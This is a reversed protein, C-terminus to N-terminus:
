SQLAALCHSTKHLCSLYTPSFVHKSIDLYDVFPVGSIWVKPGMEIPMESIISLELTFGIKKFELFAFAALNIVVIGAFSCKSWL